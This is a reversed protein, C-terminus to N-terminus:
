CLPFAPPPDGIEVISLRGRWPCLEWEPSSMHWEATDAFSAPPYVYTVEDGNQVPVAGTAAYLETAPVNSRGTPVWMKKLVNEERCVSKLMNIMGRGIGRRRYSQTVGIEYLFMMRQAISAIAATRWSSGWLNLGRL